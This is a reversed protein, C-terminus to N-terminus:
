KQTFLEDAHPSFTRQLRSFRRLTSSRKSVPKLLILYEPSYLSRRIPLNAKFLFPCFLSIPRRWCLEAGSFPNADLSRPCFFFFFFFPQANLYLHSGSLSAIVACKSRRLYNSASLFSAAPDEGFSLLAVRACDRICAFEQRSVTCDNEFVFTHSRRVFSSGLLFSQLRSQKNKGEGISVCTQFDARGSVRVLLELLSTVEGRQPIEKSFHVWRSNQIQKETSQLDVLHFTALPPILLPDSPDIPSSTSCCARLCAFALIEGASILDQGLSGTAM